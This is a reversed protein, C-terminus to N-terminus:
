EIILVHEIILLQKRGGGFVWSRAPAEVLNLQFLLTSSVQPQKEFEAFKVQEKMQLVLINLCM